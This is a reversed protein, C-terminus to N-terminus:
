QTKRVLFRESVYGERGDKTRVRVWAQHNGLITVEEGCALVKVGTPSSSIPVEKYREGCEAVATNAKPTKHEPAAAPEPLPAKALPVAATQTDAADPSTVATAENQIETSQVQESQSSQASSNAVPAQQASGSPETKAPISPQIENRIAPTDLKTEHKTSAVIVTGSPSGSKPQSKIKIKRKHRSTELALSAM